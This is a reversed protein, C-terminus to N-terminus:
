SQKRARVAALTKEWVVEEMRFNTARLQLAASEFDLLGRADAYELIALTRYVRLGRSEAAVLAASDDTLIAEGGLELALAIAEDEGPGIGLRLDNRPTKLEIWSPLDRAWAAVSLPAQPHSLEKIVASPM